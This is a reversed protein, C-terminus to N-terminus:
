AHKLYCYVATSKPSWRGPKQIKEVSVGMNLLDVSRGARFCHSSFLSINYGAKEIIIDLIERLNKPTVPDRNRFIFFPESERIFGRKRVRLYDRLIEFPCARSKSNNRNQNSDIAQIKVTQPFKNKGHTKSSWLTFKMKRKNDAIEADKALIPHTGKTLEGIRFMGYYATSFIARYLKKLYPQSSFHESLKDLLETLMHKKIPIKIRVRDNTLKCAKTLAKLLFKDETLEHGAEMLIARLASVYSRITSSQRNEKILYGIYLIVRDEWHNPMDDLRLIFKNFARWISYYNDLISQRFRKLRLKDIINLIEQSSVTSTMLTSSSNKKKIKNFQKRKRKKGSISHNESSFRVTKQSFGDRSSNCCNGQCKM